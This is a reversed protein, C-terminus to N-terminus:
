PGQVTSSVSDKNDSCKGAGSTSSPQSQSVSFIPVLKAGLDPFPHCFTKPPSVPWAGGWAHQGSTPPPPPRHDAGAVDSWSRPELPLHLAGSPRLLGRLHLAKSSSLPALGRPEICAQWWEYRINTM